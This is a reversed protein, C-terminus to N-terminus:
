REETGRGWWEEEWRLWLRGRRIMEVKESQPHFRPM